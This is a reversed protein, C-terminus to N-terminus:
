RLVKQLQQRYYSSNAGGGGTANLITIVTKQVAVPATLDWSATQAGATNTLDYIERNDSLATYGAGPAVVGADSAWAYILENDESTAGTTVTTPDGNDSYVANTQDVPSSIKAGSWENLLLVHYHPDSSGSLVSQGATGGASCNPAVFIITSQNALADNRVAQTFSCGSLTVTSTIGTTNASCSPNDCFFVLATVLGGGTLGADFTTNATANNPLAAYNNKHQTHGIALAPAAWLLLVALLTIKM